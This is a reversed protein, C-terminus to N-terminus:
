RWEGHNALDDIIGVAEQGVFSDKLLKIHSPITIGLAERFEAQYDPDAIGYRNKSQCEGHNALRDIMQLTELQVHWDGEDLRQVFSPITSTIAERFEAEYYPDATGCQKRM